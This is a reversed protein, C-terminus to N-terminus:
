WALPLAAVAWAILTPAIWEVHKHAGWRWPKWREGKVAAQEMERAIFVATTGGPGVLITLPIAAAVHLAVDRTLLWDLYRRM